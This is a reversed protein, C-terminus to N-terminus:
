GGGDGGGFSFFGGRVRIQQLTKALEDVIKTSSSEYPIKEFTQSAKMALEVPNKGRGPGRMFLKAM